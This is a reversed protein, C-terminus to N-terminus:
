EVHARFVHWEDPVGKLKHTGRDELALGSGAVLDRVTRSVLVEGPAALAAVRAGIHVAIGALDDGVLECEGTHLGCRVELGLAGVASRIASACRVARAPGDFAALFGDGATNIKRGRYRQLVESVTAYFRELLARWAGDGLAAARETSGVIDAFLVTALVREPEQAHRRGTLFQEVEGLMAERDGLWPTHDDGSLEVLRAGPIRAAMYRAHEVNLVHDKMRHLVLTPVGITSLVHRVDIERNMQMIAAAAGPSASARFYAAVREAGGKRDEAASPSRMSVMEAEPRGWRHEIDDLVRDWQENSSGFPYDPAWSRRAYSGYLVLASTRDPYTASYLLSMPGGESVGFLAARKSGVEDLIARVDHMRQELTFIQSGRDSMGTGRKDFMIVRCFSALRRFFASQDPSQWIAEINSVFGPVFLLDFPGEGVVQYAIHVDDSKVYRTSPIDPM